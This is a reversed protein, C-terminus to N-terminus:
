HVAVDAAQFATITGTGIHRLHCHRDEGYFAEFGERGLVKNLQALANPRHPDENIADRPDMLQNILLGFLEPPEAPGNHPGDLITDVVDAVWQNRTSGDHTWETALETFFETIYYNSRYPFYRPEQDPSPQDNGINGCILDARISTM